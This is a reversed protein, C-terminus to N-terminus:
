FWKSKEEKTKKKTKRPEKMWLLIDKARTAGVYNVRCTEDGGWNKPEWAAVYPFELGKSSWYTLVKVTDSAMLEELKTKDVEGQRFTVTPIESKELENRLYDITANTTCLVAWDRYEGKRQIWGKLNDLTAEGEWVTGGHRMAISDDTMYSKQLIHKAYKLINDGNRYNENLSYVKVDSEEMLNDFLDPDCGKFSYISNHTFIGDAVYTHYNEIDLSYVKINDGNIYEIHDIDVAKKRHKVSGDYILMKMNNPLINCAYTENFANSAYHNNDDRQAFPFNIDRNFDKLCRIASNYTDLESYIFNIDEQTYTTKDLQFTVQPIQYQYSIKDELVRAEKNTKFSSLIWIKECGEALMKARWPGNNTNKFQSVGVRFRNNKDCMLYTLYNYEDFRCLNTITRHNYTYISSHGDVTYVKILKENKLIRSSKNLVKMNLANKTSGGFVHGHAKDYCIVTDGIEIDEINKEEKNALLVKTGAPQCQRLDRVVICTVPLIM